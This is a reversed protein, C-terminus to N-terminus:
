KPREFTAADLMELPEVKTLELEMVLRGDAKITVKTFHKLGADDKYDSLLMEFTKEEFLNFQGAFGKARLECKVPLGNGKDLYLNVDPRGKHVVRIGVAPRDDVMEEGVASLQFAKNKLLTPMQALRLAYIEQAFFSAMEKGPGELDKVDTGLKRWVKDGQYVFTAGGGQGGERYGDLSFRVRDQGAFVGDLTFPFRREAPFAVVSAKINVTQLPELKEVGGLAKITADIQAQIAKEAAADQASLVPVGFFICGFLFVSLLFAKRFM